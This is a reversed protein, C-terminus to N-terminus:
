PYCFVKFIASFDFLRRFIWIIHISVMIWKDLKNITKTENHQYAKNMENDINFLQEQNNKIIFWLDFTFNMQDNDYDTNNSLLIDNYNM